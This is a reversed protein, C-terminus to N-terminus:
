PPLPTSRETVTVCACTGAVWTSKIPQDSKDKCVVVQCMWDRGQDMGLAQGFAVGLWLGTGLGALIAL